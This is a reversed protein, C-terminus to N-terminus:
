GSGWRWDPNLRHILCAPCETTQRWLFLLRNGCRPCPAQTLPARNILFLLEKERTILATLLSSPFEAPPNLVLSDGKRECHLGHAFAEM